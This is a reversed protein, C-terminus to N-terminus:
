LPRVKDVTLTIAGYDSEVLGSLLYPKRGALLHAYRRYTGPFFTTEVMGTEDEFTLFEM